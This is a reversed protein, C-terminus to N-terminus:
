ATEPARVTVMATSRDLRLEFQSLTKGSKGGKKDKGGKKGEGGGDNTTPEQTAPADPPPAPPAAGEDSDGGAARLLVVALIVAALLLALLAMMRERSPRETSLGFRSGKSSSEKGTPAPQQAVPAAAAPPPVPTGQAAPPPAAGPPPGSSPSSPDFTRRADALPPRPEDPAGVSPPPPAGPVPPPPPPPAAEPPPSAAPAPAAASSGIWADSSVAGLESAVRVRADPGALGAKAALADLTRERRAAIEGADAAVLKAIEDDPLRRRLSLDLLARTGPDLEALAQELAHAPNDGTPMNM